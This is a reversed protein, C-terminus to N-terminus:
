RPRRERRFVLRDPTSTAADFAYGELDFAHLDQPSACRHLAAYRTMLGRARKAMVSVIQWKVGRGNVRQEEFVCDVVPARLTKRDVAKAYEQSALNVVVPAPDDV